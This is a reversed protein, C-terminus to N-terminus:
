TNGLLNTIKQYQMKISHMLDDIIQQREEPQIYIEEVENTEKEKKKKEKKKSKSVSTIKDAKKNGILDGIAEATKQAIRKSATKAADIGTKTASNMLEKGCKDGFNEQLPSFAMAKYM